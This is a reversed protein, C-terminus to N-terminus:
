VNLVEINNKVFNKLHNSNLLNQDINESYNEDLKGRKEIFYERM